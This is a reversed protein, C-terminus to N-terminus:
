VLLSGINEDFWHRNRCMPLQHGSGALYTGHYSRICLQILCLQEDHLSLSSLKSHFKVLSISTCSLSCTLYLYLKRYSLIYPSWLLHLSGMVLNHSLTSSSQFTYYFYEKESFETTVPHGRFASIVTWLGVVRFMEQDGGRM